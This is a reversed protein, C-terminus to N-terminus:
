VTLKNWINNVAKTVNFPTTEQTYLDVVEFWASSCANLYATLEEKTEYVTVDNTYTEDAAIGVLVMAQGTQTFPCYGGDIVFSPVTGESTLKYSIVKAM